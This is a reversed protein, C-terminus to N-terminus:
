VMSKRFLCNNTIQRCRALFLGTDMVQLLRPETNQLGEPSWILKKVCIWVKFSREGKSNSELTNTLPQHSSKVKKHVEAGRWLSRCAWRPCDSWQPLHSQTHTQHMAPTLVEVSKLTLFSYYLSHINKIPVGLFLQLFLVAQHVQFWPLSAMLSNSYCLTQETLRQDTKFADGWTDWHGTVGDSTLRPSTLPLSHGGHMRFVDLSITVAWLVIQIDLYRFKFELSKDVWLTTVIIDVSLLSFSPFTTYFLSVSNM